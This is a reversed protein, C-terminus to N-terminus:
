ATLATPAQGTSPPRAQSGALPRITKTFPPRRRIGNTVERKIQEWAMFRSSDTLCSSAAPGSATGCDVTILLTPPIEAKLCRDIAADSLGYGEEGRVPIFTQAELGYASLVRQMITVSTIGDVDYDGFVCTPEGADVAQLIRQVAIDMEPLEFPDHLDRLRPRLFRDLEAEETYGRQALLLSLIRPLDSNKGPAFGEPAEKVIWEIEQM